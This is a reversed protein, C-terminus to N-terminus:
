GRSASEHTSQDPSPPRASAWVAFAIAVVLMPVGTWLNVNVHVNQGRAPYTKAHTLLGVLTVVVGYSGFLTALIWRSWSTTSRVPTSGCTRRRTCCVTCRGTFWVACAAGGDDARFMLM